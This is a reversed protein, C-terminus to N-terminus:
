FQWYLFEGAKSLSLVCAAFLAALAAAWVSDPRWEPRLWWVPSPIEARERFVIQQSNPLWRMAAILLAAYIWYRPKVLSPGGPGVGFDLLKAYLRGAAALSEARFLAWALMVFVFTGLWGFWAPLRVKEGAQKRWLRNAVLALGHVAGWLVFTWRAGHWLGAITMVLALNFCTRFMGGRSGGFPIYLYDRIFNSLTIHWRRWFDAPSSAAYPSNFNFPLRVGFMRGLGIAMDSYGSFDFYLQFAYLLLGLWADGCSLEKGAAVASFVHGVPASLSDAVLVKKALGLTFLAVGQALTGADCGRNEQRQFQPILESHHVIPGAVLQPFFSVFLCYDAFSCGRTLGRYSDVLFGVKQFTYFSIGLPLVVRLLPWDTGFVANANAVFFDAYKFYGLVGLNVALGFALLLKRLGPATSERAVLRGFGFNFAMSGMLLPLFQPGGLGYFSLSALLLLFKGANAGVKRATLHWLVLIVPLFLFIFEYSNFLVPRFSPTAPVGSEIENGGDRLGPRQGIQCLTSAM